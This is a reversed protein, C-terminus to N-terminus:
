LYAALCIARQRVISWEPSRLGLILLGVACCEGMGFKGTDLNEIYM